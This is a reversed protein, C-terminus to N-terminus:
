FKFSKKELSSFSYSYSIVMTPSRSGRGWSPAFPFSISPNLKSSSSSHNLHTNESPALISDNVIENKIKEEEEEEVEEEEEGEEHEDDEEEEETDEEEEEEEEEEEDSPHRHLLQLAKTAEQNLPFTTPPHISIICSDSAM